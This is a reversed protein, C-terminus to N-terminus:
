SIDKKAKELLGLAVSDMSNNEILKANSFTDKFLQKILPMKSTGGTLILYDIATKELGALTCCESATNLIKHVSNEISSELVSKTINLDVTNPIFKSKFDISEKQSLKIKTEEIESLLSHANKDNILKQFQTVKEPYKSNAVMKRVLMETKKSYLSTTIKNWDAADRFPTSPLTIGKFKDISNYGLEPLFTKLAFLSDLDTGGLSIGSTSLINLDKEKNNIEVITFDCTGGGLDAVIAFSKNELNKKHYYAAAIPEELFSYNKYGVKKLIAELQAIGSNPGNVNESLRVPKGIVVYDTEQKTFEETKNKVYKLYDIIIEQFSISFGPKLVTRQDFFTTGLIRKFSKMYRGYGNNIYTNTALDGYIPNEIENFPFFVSSPLSKNCGELPVMIDKGEKYVTSITNSTGFDLGCVNDM